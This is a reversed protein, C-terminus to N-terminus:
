TKSQTFFEGTVGNKLKPKETCSLPWPNVERLSQHDVLQIFFRRLIKKPTFFKKRLFHTGNSCVMPVDKYHFMDYGTALIILDVKLEGGDKLRIGNETIETVGECHLNVGLEEFKRFIYDTCYSFNFFLNDNNKNNMTEAFM